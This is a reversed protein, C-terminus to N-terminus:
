DEPCRRPARMGREEERRRQSTSVDGESVTDDDDEFESRNPSDEGRGRGSRRTEYIDYEDAGCGFMLVVMREVESSSLKPTM